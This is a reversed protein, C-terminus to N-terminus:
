REQGSYEFKRVVSARRELLISDFRIKVLGKMISASDRDSTGAVRKGVGRLNQGREM